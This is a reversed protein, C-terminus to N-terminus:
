FLTVPKVIDAYILLASMVGLVLVVGLTGLIAYPDPGIAGLFAFLVAQALVISLTITALRYMSVRGTLADVRARM